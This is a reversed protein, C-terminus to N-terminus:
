ALAEDLLRPLDDVSSAKSRANRIKECLAPDFLRRAMLQIQDFLFQKSDESNVPESTAVWIASCFCGDEPGHDFRWLKSLPLDSFLKQFIMECWMSHYYGWLWIKPAQEGHGHCSMGTRVGVWPLVKVLLAIGAELERIRVLSGFRNSLFDEWGAKDEWSWLFTEMKVSKFNLVSTRLAKWLRADDMGGITAIVSGNQILPFADDDNLHILPDLLDFLLELDSYMVKKCIGIGDGELRVPFGRRLLMDALIKTAQTPKANPTQPIPLMQSVPLLCSQHQSKLPTM